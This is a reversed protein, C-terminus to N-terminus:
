KNFLQDGLAATEINIKEKEHSILNKDGRGRRRADVEDEM